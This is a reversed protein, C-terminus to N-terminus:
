VSDEEHGFTGFRLGEGGAGRPKDFNAFPFAEAEARPKLDFKETVGPAGLYALTKLAENQIPATIVLYPPSESGAEDFKYFDAARVLRRLSM